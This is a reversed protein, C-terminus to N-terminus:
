FNQSIKCLARRREIPERTIDGNKKKVSIGFVMNRV